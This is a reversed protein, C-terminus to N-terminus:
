HPMHTTTRTLSSRSSPLAWHIRILCPCVCYAAPLIRVETHCYVTAAGTRRVLEAVVEEPRGVRVVLESGAARLAARLDAVAEALFQARFPGACLLPYLRPLPLCLAPPLPIRPQCSSQYGASPIHRLAIAPLAGCLVPEPLQVLYCHNVFLLAV